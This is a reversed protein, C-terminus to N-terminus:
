RQGADPPASRPAPAPEPRSSAMSGVWILAAVVWLHRWHLTDIFFSNLALGCWAGFLAASGIGYTSRGALANRAAMLLTGGVLVVISLLGLLGQEAFTRVYLSHADYEAAFGFQGPGIGLPYREALEIGAAQAGFREVDYTQFSAREGLFGLSGTFAIVASAAVAVVVTVSLVLAARRGGGRRLAIVLLMAAVGLALNGWAARSYSFLVGVTLLAFLAGKTWLRMRLLRPNIIEELLILAVPILFPGFVNADKFLGEIREQGAFEDGYLLFGRGPVPLGLAALGM